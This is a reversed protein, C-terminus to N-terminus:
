HGEAIDCKVSSGKKFREWSDVAGSALGAKGIFEPWWQVQMGTFRSVDM